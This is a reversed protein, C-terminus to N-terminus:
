RNHRITTLWQNIGLGDSFEPILSKVEEPHVMRSDTVPNRREAAKLKEELALLDLRLQITKMRELIASNEDADGMGDSKLEEYRRNLQATPTICPTDLIAAEPQVLLTRPADM